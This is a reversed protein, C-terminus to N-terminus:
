SPPAGHGAITVSAVIAAFATEAAATDPGGLCADLALWGMTGPVDPLVVKISGTGGIAQCGEDPSGSIRRASLGAVTIPQGGSPAQSGPMGGLRVAVVMGGPGLTLIPWPYCVGGQSTDVCDSPLDVPSAYSFSVNGSPNPLGPRVHWDAPVDFGIPGAVM